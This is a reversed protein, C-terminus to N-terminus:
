DSDTEYDDSEDENESVFGNNSREGVLGKRALYSTPGDPTLYPRNSENNLLDDCWEDMYSLRYLIPMGKVMIPSKLQFRLKRYDSYFPELTNLVDESPWVVRIYLM